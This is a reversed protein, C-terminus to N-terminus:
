RAELNRTSTYNEKSFMILLKLLDYLFVFSLHNFVAFHIKIRYSSGPRKSVPLDAPPQCKM